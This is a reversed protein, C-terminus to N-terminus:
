YEEVFRVFCYKQLRVYQRNLQSHDFHIEIEQKPLVSFDAVIEMPELNYTLSKKQNEMKADLIVSVLEHEILMLYSATFWELSISCRIGIKSIFAEFLFEFKIGAQKNAGFGDDDFKEDRNGASTYHLQNFCVINMFMTISAILIAFGISVAFFPQRM